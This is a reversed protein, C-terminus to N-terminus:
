ARAAPVHAREGAREHEELVQRPDVFVSAHASRYCAEIVAAHQLHYGPAGLNPREGALVRCFYDIQTGAAAGWARERTLHESVEGDGELRRISGRELEVAGDTGVVSLRETAPGIFRSVLAKGHLGGEWRLLVNATDEADYPTGDVAKCSTVAAVSVPLGFFWILLDILHYGMDILCGGGAHLASGRWGQHPAQVYMTYRADVFFPEGIQDALQFYSTYIPNFRRQLTTMVEIGESRALEALRKAEACSTAFPKEKLVHVSARAADEVIAAHAAHPAAVVVFDLQERELLDVHSSYGTVGAEAALRALKAEDPDCVAVLEALRSRQFGPLHDECARKGLGVVAARYRRTM